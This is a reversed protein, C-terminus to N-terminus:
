KEFIYKSRSINNAILTEAKKLKTMGVFIRLSLRSMKEFKIVRVKLKPIDVKRNGM